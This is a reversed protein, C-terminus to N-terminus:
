SNTIIRAGIPLIEKLEEKTLLGKRELIFILELILTSIRKDGNPLKSKGLLEEKNYLSMPVSAKWIYRASTMVLM